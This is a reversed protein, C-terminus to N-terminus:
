PVAESWVREAARWSLVTTQEYLARTKEREGQEFEFDIYAKWLNEPYSLSTQDIGLEYIARSRAYDAM